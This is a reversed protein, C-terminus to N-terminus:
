QCAITWWSPNDAVKTKVSSIVDGEQAMARCFDALKVLTFTKNENPNDVIERHLPFLPMIRSLLSNYHPLKQLPPTICAVGIM